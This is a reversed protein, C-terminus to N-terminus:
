VRVVRHVQDVFACADPLQEPRRAPPAAQAVPNACQEHAQGAAEAVVAGQERSRPHGQARQALTVHAHDERHEVREEVLQLEILGVRRLGLARIAVSQDSLELQDLVVERFLMSGRGHHDARRVLERLRQLPIPHRENVAHLAAEVEARGRRLHVLRHARQGLAANGVDREGMEHPSVHGGVGVGQGEQGLAIVPAPKRLRLVLSEGIEAPGGHPRHEALPHQDIQRVHAGAGQAVGEVQEVLDVRALGLRHDRRVRAKAEPRLLVAHVLRRQQANGLAAAHDAQDQGLM